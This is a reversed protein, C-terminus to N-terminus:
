NTNCHTGIPIDTHSFVDGAEGAEGTGNDAMTSMVPRHHRTIDTFVVDAPGDTAHRDTNDEAVAM